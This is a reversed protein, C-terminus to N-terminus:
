GACSRSRCASSPRSTSGSLPRQRHGNAGNKYQRVLDVYEGNVSVYVFRARLAAARRPLHQHAAFRGDARLEDHRQLVRVPRVVGNMGLGMFTGSVGGPSRASAARHTTSTRTTSSSPRSAPSTTWAAEPRGARRRAHLQRQRPSRLLELRPDHHRRQDDVRARDAQLAPLLGAFGARARLPVRRRMGYGRKSFWDHMFTADQSRGIAWFFANSLTFGRYTSTGYVPMLFGTARDEKNIPYYLVPLYFVPVSKAKLLANTLYAYHDLNLIVTGSTVQWRPTPQLCTTFGGRRIKYKKYGIKEIEDGYFYVDADQGGLMDHKPEGASCRPVPRTSSPASARRPTSTPATPRSGAQGRRSSSTAPLWSATAHGGVVRDRRRLVEHRRAPGRRRGDAERPEQGAARDEVAQIHRLRDGAAGAGDRCARARRDPRRSKFDAAFLLRSLCQNDPNRCAPKM